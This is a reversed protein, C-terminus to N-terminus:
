GGYEKLQTKAIKGSPTTPLTDMFVVERPVKYDAMRSRCYDILEQATPSCGATPVVFFRGVEGLVPDPVGIGAVMAVDPHDALVNEVEVPYVNYGGQLYMEKARGLLRIHQSEDISAIDGTAVWGDVFTERTPEPLEWYGLANGPGRLYLEGTGETQDGVPVVRAEVGPIPVGISSAITETGDSAASIVAAGSVESLGYLNMLRANPLAASIQRCLAPDANAGGIVVHRLSSLDRRPASEHDLMLKWMTPVGAFLTARHEEMADLANTPSFAPLLVVSARALLAATVTCTLGGVHNLPMVGVVVDQPGTGVHANQASAAGLLSAHTLTAGKPLGTTGSTYLIVAPDNSDPTPLPDTYGASLALLEEWGRDPTAGGLFYVDEVSPLEPLLNHYLEEFDIDGVKASSVVLRCGSQTIMHRLEHERYRVNLTVTIIGVRAAGLMLDLWEAQNPSAVAVRDGPRLGKALLARAVATTRDDLQRFTIASSGEQTAARLFVRDPHERAARSLVTAYTSM